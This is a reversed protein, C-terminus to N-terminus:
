WDIDEFSAEDIQKDNSRNVEASVMLSESSLCYFLALFRRLTM